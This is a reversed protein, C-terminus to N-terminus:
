LPNRFCQGQVTFISGDEDKKKSTSANIMRSSFRKKEGSTDGVRIDYKWGKASFARRTNNSFIEEM